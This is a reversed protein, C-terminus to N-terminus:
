PRRVPHGLYKMITCHFLSFSINPSRLESPLNNYILTSTYLPTLEGSRRTVSPLCLSNFTQGHTTRYTSNAQTRLKYQRCLLPSAISHVCRHTLLLLKLDFRVSLLALGFIKLLPTTPTWPSTRAIACIGKQSAQFLRAKERASLSSSFATSGYELDPQVVSVYYQRRTLQSGATRLAFIKRSVKRLVHDIHDLFVGLYKYSAVTELARGHCYVLVDDTRSIARPLVFMAQTKKVNIQLGLDDVLVSLDSLASSLVRACNQQSPSSFFLLIDDPATFNTRQRWQHMYYVSQIIVARARPEPCGLREIMCSANSETSKQPVKKARTHSQVVTKKKLKSSICQWHKTIHEDLTPVLQFFDLNSRNEGKGFDGTERLRGPWDDQGSSQLPSM